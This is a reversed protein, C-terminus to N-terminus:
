PINPGLMSLLFVLVIIWRTLRRPSAQQVQERRYEVIWAGMMAPYVLGVEANRLRGQACISSSVIWRVLQVVSNGSEIIGNIITRCFPCPMEVPWHEQSRLTSWWCQKTCSQCMKHPCTPFSVTSKRRSCIYCTEDNDCDDDSGDSDSGGECYPPEEPVTDVQWEDEDNDEETTIIQSVSSNLRPFLLDIQIMNSQSIRIPTTLGSPPPTRPLPLDNEEFNYHTETLVQSEQQADIIEPVPFNLQLSLPGIQVMNSQGASIPTNTGSASPTSSATLINEQANYYVELHEETNLNNTVQHLSADCAPSTTQNESM